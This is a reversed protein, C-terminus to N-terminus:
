YVYPIYRKTRSMYHRYNDGHQDLLSQEESRVQVELLLIFVLVFALVPWTPWILWMGINVLFLGSYTPNRIHAFVGSTVLETPRAEDIGVRWSDSMTAQAIRCLILGLLGLLLGIEDWGPRNLVRVRELGWLRSSLTAHTLILVFIFIRLLRTMHFFYRQLPIESQGMVEPDIGSRKRQSRRQTRWLLVFGMFLVIVYGAGRLDQIM